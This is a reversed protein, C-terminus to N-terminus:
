LNLSDSNLQHSSLFVEFPPNVSLLHFMKDDGGSAIFRGDPSVAVKNVQNSHHSLTTICEGTAISWVKVTKDVSGSVVFQGDPTVAVSMVFGAHSSMTKIEKMTTIDWMKVTKDSSGSVITTANVFALSRVWNSHGKMVGIQEGTEVNWVIITGDGSASIVRKTKKDYLICNVWNSHGSYTRICEGTLRNWLRITTDYSCTLVYRDECEIICDVAGTHGKLTIMTKTKLDVVRGTNDDCGALLFGGCETVKVDWIYAGMEIRDIEMRTSTDKVVATMNDGYVVRTKDFWIAWV